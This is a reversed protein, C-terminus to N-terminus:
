KWHLMRLRSLIWPRWRYGGKQRAFNRIPPRHLRRISWARWIYVLAPASFNHSVSLTALWLLRLIHNGMLSLMLWNHIMWVIHTPFGTTITACYHKAAQLGMTNKLILWRGMGQREALSFCYWCWLPTGQSDRPFDAQSADSIIADNSRVYKFIETVM